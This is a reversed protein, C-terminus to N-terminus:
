KNAKLTLAQKLPTLKLKLETNQHKLKTNVRIQATKITTTM